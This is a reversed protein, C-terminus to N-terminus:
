DKEGSPKGKSTVYESCTKAGEADSLSLGRAEMEEAVALVHSADWRGLNQLLSLPVSRSKM